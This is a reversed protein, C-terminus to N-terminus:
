AGTQCGLAVLSTVHALQLGEVDVAFTKMIDNKNKCRHAAKQGSEQLNRMLHIFNQAHRRYRWGTEPRCGVAVTICCCKSTSHSVYPINENIFTRDSHLRQPLFIQKTNSNNIYSNTSTLLLWFSRVMEPTLRRYEVGFVMPLKVSNLQRFDLYMVHCHPMFRYEQCCIHNDSAPRFEWADGAKTFM